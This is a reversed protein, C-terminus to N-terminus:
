FFFLNLDELHKRWGALDEGVMVCVWMHWSDFNFAIKKRKKLASVLLMNNQVELLASVRAKWVKKESVLQYFGFIYLYLLPKLVYVIVCFMWAFLVAAHVHVLSNWKFSYFLIFVGSIIVDFIHPSFFLVNYIFLSLSFQINPSLSYLGNVM